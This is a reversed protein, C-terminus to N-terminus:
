PVASRWSGIHDVCRRRDAVFVGPGLEPDGSDSNKEDSSCSGAASACVAELASVVM